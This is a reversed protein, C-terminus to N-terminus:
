KVLTVRRSLLTGNGSSDSVLVQTTMAVARRSRKLAPRVRKLFKVRLLTTGATARKATATAIVVPATRSDLKLRRATKRDVSLAISIGCAEQCRVRMPVGKDAVTKLRQRTFSRMSAGPPTLDKIDAKGPALVPKIAPTGIAPVVILPTTTETTTTAPGPVEVRVSGTISACTTPNLIVDTVNNAGLDATVSDGPGCTIDKDAVGDAAVIEDAGAGGVFTDAGFGGILTDGDNGANLTDDGDGGRLTNVGAGGVLTDDGGEGKLSDNATGGTITDAGPSGTVNEISSADLAASPTGLNVSVGASSAFNLTDSGDGGIVTLDPLGDPIALTDNGDGLDVTVRTALPCTWSPNPDTTNPDTLGCTDEDGDALVGGQGSVGVSDAFTVGNAADRSLTLVNNEGPGADYRAPASVPDPPPATPDPLPPAPHVNSVTGAMAAPACAGGVACAVVMGQILRRAAARKPGRVDM